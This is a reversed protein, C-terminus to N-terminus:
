IGLMTQYLKRHRSNLEFVEPYKEYRMIGRVFPEMTTIYSLCEKWNSLIKYCYKEQLQLKGSLFSNKKYLMLCVIILVILTVLILSTWSIELDM